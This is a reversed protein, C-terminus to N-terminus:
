TFNTLFLHNTSIIYKGVHYQKGLLSTFVRGCNQCTREELTGRKRGRKSSQDINEKSVKRKGKIVPGGPRESQRCVFNAVHYQLGSATSFVRQCYPCIGDSKPNPNRKRKKQKALLQNKKFEENESYDDEDGECIAEDKEGEADDSIVDGELNDEKYSLLPPGARKRSSRRRKPGMKEDLGYGDDGDENYNLAARKRNKTGAPAKKKAVYESSETM